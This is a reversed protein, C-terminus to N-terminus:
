PAYVVVRGRIKCDSSPKYGPEGPKRPFLDGFPGVPPKLTFDGLYRDLSHQSKPFPKAM